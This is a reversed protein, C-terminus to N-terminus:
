YNAINLGPCGTIPRNPTLLRLPLTWVTSCKFNGSAHESCEFAMELPRHWEQSLDYGITHQEENYGYDGRWYQIVATCIFVDHSITWQHGCYSTSQSVFWQKISAGMM